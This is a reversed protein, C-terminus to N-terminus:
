RRTRPRSACSCGATRSRGRGSAVKAYLDGPRPRGEAGKLRLRLNTFARLARESRLTAASVSGRALTGEFTIDSMQKGELVAVTVPLAPKLPELRDDRAPLRVNWSGAM